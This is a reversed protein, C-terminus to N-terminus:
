LVLHCVRCMTPAALATFDADKTDKGGAILVLPRDEFASVAHLTSYPSTAKADNYFAIGSREAVFELVHEEGRYARAAEAIARDGVGVSDSGSGGLRNPWSM